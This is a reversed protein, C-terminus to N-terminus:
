KEPSSRGALFTTTCAASTRTQPRIVGCAIASRNPRLERQIHSAKPRMDLGLPQEHNSREEFKATRCAEMKTMMSPAIALVSVYLPHLPDLPNHCLTSRARRKPPPTLDGNTLERVPLTGAGDPHKQLRVAITECLSRDCIFRYITAYGFVLLVNSM